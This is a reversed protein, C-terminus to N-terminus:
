ERYTETNINFKESAYHPCNKNTKLKERRHANINCDYSYHCRATQDVSVPFYGAAEPPWM